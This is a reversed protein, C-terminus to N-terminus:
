RLFKFAYSLVLGCYHIKMLPPSYLDWLSIILPNIKRRHSSLDKGHFLSRKLVNGLMGLSIICNTEQIELWKPDGCLFDRSLFICSSFPKYIKKGFFSAVVLHSLIPSKTARKITIQSDIIFYKSTKTESLFDTLFFFFLEFSLSSHEVLLLFNFEL